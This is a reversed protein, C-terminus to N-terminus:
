SFAAAPPLRVLPHDALGLALRMALIVLYTEDSEDFPPQDGERWLLLAGFARNRGTLAAALVGNVAVREVYPWYVPPLWLRLQDPRSIAMRLAGGSRLVAKSFADPPTDRQQGIVSRLYRSASARRHAVAVPRLGEGGSSALSVLCM